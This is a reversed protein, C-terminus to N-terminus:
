NRNKLWTDVMRSLENYQEALKGRTIPDGAGATRAAEVSKGIVVDLLPLGSEQLENLAAQHVKLRSDYQCILIGFLVLEPNLAERIEALSGLFLRLGRLDLGSPLTPCIVAHSAALANVVLLGLSPGCDILALDYGEVGALARRLVSERAFRGVLGLESASLGIDGPAIDLGPSIPKLIEPLQLKGPKAGGLVEALSSGSSDGVTALSLSAQPDLDCLLVKRGLAVLGAGLNLATTTKGVGGKQNAVAIIRM